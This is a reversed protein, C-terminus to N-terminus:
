LINVKEGYFLRMILDFKLYPTNIIFHGDAIYVTTKNDEIEDLDNYYPLYASVNPIIVIFDQWHEKDDDIGLQSM